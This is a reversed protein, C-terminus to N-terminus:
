DEPEFTWRYSKVFQYKYKSIHWIAPIWQHYLIRWWCTRTDLKVKETHTVFGYLLYIQGQLQSQKRITKWTRRASNGTFNKEFNIYKLKPYNSGVFLKKSLLISFKQPSRLPIEALVAVSIMPWHQRCATISRLLSLHWYFVKPKNIKVEPFM